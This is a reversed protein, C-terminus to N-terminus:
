LVVITILKDKAIITPNYNVIMVYALFQLM